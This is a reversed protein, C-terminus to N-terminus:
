KTAVGEAAAGNPAEGRAEGAQAGVDGVVEGISAEFTFTFLYKRSIFFTEFGRAWGECGESIMRRSCVLVSANCSM